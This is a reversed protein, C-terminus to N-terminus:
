KKFTNLHYRNPMRHPPILEPEILSKKWQLAEILIDTQSKGEINWIDKKPIISNSIGPAIKPM